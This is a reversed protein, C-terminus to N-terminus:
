NFDIAYYSMALGVPESDPCGLYGYGEDSWEHLHQLDCLLHGSSSAEILRGTIFAAESESSTLFAALISENFLQGSDKYKYLHEEFQGGKEPTFLCVYDYRREIDRRGGDDVINQAPETEFKGNMTTIDFSQLREMKVMIHSKDSLRDDQLSAYVLYM